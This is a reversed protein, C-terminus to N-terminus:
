MKCDNGEWSWHFLIGEKDASFITKCRLTITTSTNPFTFPRGKPKYVYLMGGSPLPMSQDPPGWSMFLKEAPKGMWKKLRHNYRTETACASLLMLAILLIRM